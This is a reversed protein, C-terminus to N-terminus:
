GHYAKLEVWFTSGKQPTSEVGVRGGMREVAKRVIALGIGTGEYTGARHARQFMQFLRKQAAPEIGIGNDEFKFRVFGKDVPDATVRIKAHVGLAVFKAANGLLNALVQTLASRNGWVNALREPVTIEAIEPQRNPYTHIIEHILSDIDIPDLELDARVIKSYSLVDQILQDLRDASVSIRQLLDKGAQDLQDTHNETLIASFGQMARLPARMDHAITYSFAELEGVTENLKATRESVLEELHAAHHQLRDESDRLADEAEKREVSVWVRDAIVKMLESEALTWHRPQDHAAWFIGVWDGERHLPVAIQSRVEIPFFAAEYVGATRPDTKLDDFTSTLGASAEEKWHQAYMSLPYTGALSQFPGHYDSTVVMQGAAADVRAVGCRGVGLEGAVCESVRKILQSASSSAAACEGVQALLRQLRESERLANEACRRETIDRTAGFWETVEGKADMLPVARSFTWGSSGDARLVRHELEFASKQSTAKRIAELVLPRDERHIYTDLWKSDPNGTDGVFERGHLRRLDKWDPSMSYIIDSTATVLARFREESQRLSEEFQMRETIDRTTGAVAELEGNPGLVPVFIYDCIRRGSAGSFPVQGRIPKRAAVVQDIERDHMAAHWAPYGLELCNKGIAQDWTRGWMRLLAANAYTFRHDLGFVYVLDPTNSLITEYFRRRQESESALRIYAVEPQRRETVDRNKTADRVISSIGIARGASDRLVSLTLSVRLLQGDKKVRITEFSTGPEGTSLQQLLQQEENQREQPIIRALSNGIMEAATYGFLYEAARNWTTVKDSLDKSIIADQSSEVIAALFTSTEGNRVATSDLM